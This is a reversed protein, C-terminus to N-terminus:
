FLHENIDMGLFDFFLGMPTKKLGVSEMKNAIKNKLNRLRFSSHVFMLVIPLLTAILFVLVCDFLYVLVYGIAFIGLISLVPHHRKFDMLVPKKNSAYIFVAVAVTM